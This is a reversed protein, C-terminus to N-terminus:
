AMSEEKNRLEQRLFHEFEVRRKQNNMERQFKSISRIIAQIAYWAWQRKGTMFQGMRHRLGRDARSTDEPPFLDQYEKFWRKEMAKQVLVQATMLMLPSVVKTERIESIISSHCGLQEEAPIQAHFYKRVIRDILFNKMKPSTEAVLKEVDLWFSLPEEADHEELFWKFFKLHASSHLVKVFHRPRRSPKEVVVTTSDAPSAPSGVMVVTKKKRNKTKTDDEPSRPCPPEKKKSSSDEALEDTQVPKRSDADGKGKEIQEKPTSPISSEEWLSPMAILQWHESSLSELNRTGHLAQSLKLSENIRQSLIFCKDEEVAHGQVKPMQIDDQPAMFQLFTRDDDALFEEYSCCLVKCIEKQARYIWPSFEAAMLHNRLSRLTEVELPLQRITEEELHSKSIKEGILHRLFFGNERGPDLVVPLFEELDQWLDLLQTEVPRDQRELFRRFPRGACGEASLAWPLFSLTEAPQQASPASLHLDSLAEGECQGVNSRQPSTTRGKGGFAPTALHEAQQPVPGWADKDVCPEERGGVPGLQRGPQAPFGLTKMEQTNRGVKVTTWIKAKSKKSCYPGSSGRSRKICMTYLHEPFDSPEQADAQSLREGYEQLLPKCSKEEAMGMKCHIFFKPLWYSQIVFLAQAQMKSLMERTTSIPQICRSKPGSTAGCLTVVSSGERLHTAKLRHVLSLYTDRQKADSENLGLLRETTLWFDTLEEGPMGQIFARFRWMGRSGSICKELLWQDASQWNLLKA